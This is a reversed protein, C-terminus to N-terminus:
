FITCVPDHSIFKGLSVSIANVMQENESGADGAIEAARTMNDLASGLFSVKETMERSGALMHMPNDKRGLVANVIDDVRISNKGSKEVVDFVGQMVQRTGANMEMIGQLIEEIVGM